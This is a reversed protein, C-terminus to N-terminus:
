RASRAAPCSQYGPGVKDLGEGNQQDNEDVWVGVM